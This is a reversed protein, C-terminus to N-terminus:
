PTQKLSSCQASGVGVGDRLKPNAKHGGADRGQRGEGGQQQLELPEREGQLCGEGFLQKMLQEKREALALHSCGQRGLPIQGFSPEYTGFSIKGRSVATDSCSQGAQRQSCLSGAKSRTGSTHLGQHLNEIAESIHKNTLRAPDKNPITGESRGKKKQQEDPKKEEKETEEVADGEQNNEKVRDSQPNQETKMLIKLEQKLFETEKEMEKLFESCAREEM